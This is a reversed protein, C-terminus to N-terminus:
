TGGSYREDDMTDAGDPRDDAVDFEEALRERLSAIRETEREDALVGYENLASLVVTADGGTLEFEGNEAAGLDDDFESELRDIEGESADTADSEHRRLAELVTEAEAGNLVIERSQDGSM